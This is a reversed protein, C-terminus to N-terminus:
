FITFSFSDPNLIAQNVSPAVRASLASFGEAPATAGPDAAFPMQVKGAGARKLGTKTLYNVRIISFCTSFRFLASAQVCAGIVSARSRNGNIDGM